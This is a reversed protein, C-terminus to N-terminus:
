VLMWKLVTSMTNLRNRWEVNKHGVGQQWNNQKKGSGTRPAIANTDLTMRRGDGGKSTITPAM